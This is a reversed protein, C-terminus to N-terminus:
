KRKKKKLQKYLKETLYNIQSQERLSFQQNPKQPNQTGKNMMAKSPNAPTKKPRNIFESDIEGDGDADYNIKGCAEGENSAQWNTVVGSEMCEEPTDYQGQGMIVPHCGEFYSAWPQLAPEDAMSAGFCRWQMLDGNNAAPPAQSNIGWVWQECSVSQRDYTVSSGDNPGVEIVEWKSQQGGSIGNGSLNSTHANYFFVDGVQPSFGDITMNFMVPGFSVAGNPSHDCPRVTVRKGDTSPPGASPSVPGPATNQEKILKKRSKKYSTKKMKKNEKLGKSKIKKRKSDPEKEFGPGTPKGGPGPQGEPPSIGAEYCCVATAGSGSVWQELSPNPNEPTLNYYAECALTQINSPLDNFNGCGEWWSYSDDWQGETGGCCEIPPCVGSILSTETNPDGEGTFADYVEEGWCAGCISTFVGESGASDILEECSYTVQENLPKYSYGKGKGYKNETMWKHYDFKTM